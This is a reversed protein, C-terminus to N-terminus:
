GSLDVKQPRGTRREEAAAAHLLDELHSPKVYEAGMSFAVLEEKAGPLDMEAAVGLVVGRALNQVVVAGAGILAGLTAASGTDLERLGPVFSSLVAAGLAGLAGYVTTRGLGALHDSHQGGGKYEDTIVFTPRDAPGRRQIGLGRDDLVPFFSATLGAALGDAVAMLKTSVSM